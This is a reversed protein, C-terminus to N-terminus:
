IAAMALVLAVSWADLVSPLALLIIYTCVCSITIDVKGHLCSFRGSYCGGTGWIFDTAPVKTM